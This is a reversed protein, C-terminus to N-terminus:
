RLLRWALWGAFMALGIWLWPRGPVAGPSNSAQARMEPHQSVYADVADKAEKLGIHQERRVIKIAEIMNGAAVAAAAAAPISAPSNADPSSNM